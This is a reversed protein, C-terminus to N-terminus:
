HALRSDDYPGGPSPQGPQPAFAVRDSGTDARAASGSVAPATTSGLAALGREGYHFHSKAGFAG